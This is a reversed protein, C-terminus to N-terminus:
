VVALHWEAIVLVVETHDMSIEFSDTCNDTTTLWHHGAVKDAGVQYMLTNFRMVLVSALRAELETVAKLMGTIGMWGALGHVSTCKRLESHNVILLYEVNIWTTM